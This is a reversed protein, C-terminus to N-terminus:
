LWLSHESIHNSSPNRHSLGYFQFSDSDSHMERQTHESQQDTIFTCQIENGQLARENQTSRNFLECFRNSVFEIEYVCSQIKKVSGIVEHNGLTRQSM